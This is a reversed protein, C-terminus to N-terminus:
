IDSMEFRLGSSISNLFIREANLFTWMFRSFVVVGTLTQEQWPAQTYIFQEQPTLIILFRLECM